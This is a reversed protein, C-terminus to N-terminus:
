RFSDYNWKSMKMLVKELHFQHSTSTIVEFREVFIGSSQNEHIEM